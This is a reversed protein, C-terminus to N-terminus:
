GGESNIFSFNLPFDDSPSLFLSCLVIICTERVNLKECLFEGRFLVLIFSYLVIPVKTSKIAKKSSSFTCTPILGSSSPSSYPPCLLFYELHLSTLFLPLVDLIFSTLFLFFSLFHFNFSHSSHILFRYKPYIPLVTPYFYWIHSQLLFQHVDCPKIM